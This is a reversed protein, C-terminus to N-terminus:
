AGAALCDPCPLTCVKIEPKAADAHASSSGVMAAAGASALSGFLAAAGIMGLPGGVLASRAESDHPSPPRPLSPARLTLPPCPAHLSGFLVALPGGVLAYWAASYRTPPSPPM